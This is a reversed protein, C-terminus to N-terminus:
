LSSQIIKLNSQLGPDTPNIELAKQMYESAKQSDGFQFYIAALNQYSQWIYPNISLAKNYYKIAEEPQGNMQYTNALNHFADGYNPNIQTALTFEEIAKQYDGRRAWVDGMNNHIPAGSPSTKVTAFWLNDENKWDINRIISRVSLAIIILAFFAYVFNKYRIDKEALNNIFLAVLLFIGMSGLYVYREAMVWSIGFPTLTPLLTIILFALWFFIMRDKKYFYFIVGIFILFLVVYLFFVFPTFSLETQYLSLSSPWFILKIYSSIATPIQVFPNSVKTAQYNITQLGSVRTGIRGIYLLLYILSVSIYPVLKKWNRALAGRSFEFAILAIFLVAAMNYTFLSLIFSAISIYYLKKNNGSILYFLFSLLFFFSYRAYPGGSIWTVSEVHIPHVAFIAATFFAVSRKTLLSLVIFVLFTAGLHFFINSLRFISPNIGGLHYLFFYLLRGLPANADSFVAKLSGIDPNKTIIPIDDSVFANGISNAYVAAVLIFLIIFININNALFESFSFANLNNEAEKESYLNEYKKNPWRKKIFKEIEQESIALDDAMKGISFRKINKKIYHKQQSTLAM